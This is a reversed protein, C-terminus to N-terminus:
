KKGSKFLEYRVLVQLTQNREKQPLSGALTFTIFPQLGFAYRAAFSFRRYRYQTEFAAHFYSKAFTSTKDNKISVISRQKLSDSGTILNINRVDEESVARTFKNWIVGAGVSWDRAIFYNFTLPLQHYFTKQLKLSTNQVLTNSILTDVREEYVKNNEVSYQPAGYKFEAQVFWKDKKNLQVYVSPIYDMLSGKRGSASYPTLKQGGIPILQQLGVGASFYLTDRKKTKATEAIPNKKLVTDKRPLNNKKLVSDKKALNNKSTDTLQPKSNDNKSVPPILAQAPENTNAPKPNSVEGKRIGAAVPKKSVPKPTGTTRGTIQPVNEKASRGSGKKIGTHTPASADTISPLTTQKKIKDRSPVPSNELGAERDSSTSHTSDSRSFEDDTTDASRRSTGTSEDNRPVDQTERGPRNVLSTDGTAPQRVIAQGHKDTTRHYRFIGWGVALLAVIVLGWVACGPRWWIFFPKDDEEELRRKMDLWAMNEDPLPLATWDQKLRDEYPLRKSM